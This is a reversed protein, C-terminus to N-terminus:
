HANMGEPWACIDVLIFHAFCINVVVTICELCPVCYQTEHSELVSHMQPMHVSRYMCLMLCSAYKPCLVKSGVDTEAAPMSGGMWRQPKVLICGELGASMHRTSGDSVQNHTTVAQDLIVRDATVLLRGCQKRVWDGEQVRCRSNWELMYQTIVLM